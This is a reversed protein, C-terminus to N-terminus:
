AGEAEKKEPTAIPAAAKRAPETVLNLVRMGHVYTIAGGLWGGLTLFGFGVITLIFPGTGVLGHAYHKHGFLIALIFFVSATANALAHMTATRKLPTGSEITLWDLFGTAVTVTSFIAGIVLALWWGYAGAHSTIGVVQIFAAVTAFTYAGITADTLPPHVPHGPLGRWLYSLKM